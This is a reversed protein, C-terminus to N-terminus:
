QKVSSTIKEVTHALAKDTHMDNKIKSVSALITAHDRGFIDGIATVPLSTIHRILYVSLHRATAIAKNRKQGKIDEIPIGYEKEIDEGTKVLNAALRTIKDYIKTCLRKEDDCQCDFLSIGMTITRIDLCEERIMNITEFIDNSALM